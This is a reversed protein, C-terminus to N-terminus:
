VRRGPDSSLDKGVGLDPELAVQGATRPDKDYVETAFGPDYVGCPGLWGAVGPGSGRPAAGPDARDGNM